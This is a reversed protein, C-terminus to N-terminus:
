FISVSKRANTPTTSMNISGNPTNPIGIVLTPNNNPTQIITPQQTTSTAQNNKNNSNANPRSQQQPSISVGKVITQNKVPTTQAQGTIIANGNTANPPLLSISQGNQTIPILNNLLMPQMQSTYFQPYYQQGNTGIVQVPQMSNLVGMNSAQILQPQTNPQFAGSFQPTIAQGGQVMLQQQTGSPNQQQQVAAQPAVGTLTALGVPHQTFVVNGPIQPQVSAM